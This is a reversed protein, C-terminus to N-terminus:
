GKIQLFLTKSIVRSEPPTGWVALVIVQFDGEAADPPVRLEYQGQAKEDSLIYHPMVVHLNGPRGARESFKVKLYIIDGPAFIKKERPYLVQLDENSADDPSKGGWNKIESTKMSLHQAIKGSHDSVSVSINEATIVPLQFRCPITFKEQPYLSTSKTRRRKEESSMSHYRNEFEDKVDIRFPEDFDIKKNVSRNILQILFFLEQDADESQRIEAGVIAAEVEYDPSPCQIGAPFAVASVFNSLIIVLLIQKFM